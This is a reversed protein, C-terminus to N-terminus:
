ENKNQISADSMFLPDFNKFSTKTPTSPAAAMIPHLSSLAGAGSLSFATSVTAGSSEVEVVTLAEVVVTSSVVVVVVTACVVVVTFDFLGFEVVVRGGAVGAGVRAGVGVAGGSVVGVM